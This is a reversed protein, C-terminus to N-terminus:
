APVTVTFCVSLMNCVAVGSTLTYRLQDKGNFLGINSMFCVTKPACCWMKDRSVRWHEADFVGTKATLCVNNPMPCAPKWYSIYQNHTHFAATDAHLVVKKPM